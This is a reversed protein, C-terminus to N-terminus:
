ERLCRRNSFHFLHFTKGKFKKRWKEGFMMMDSLFGVAGAGCPATTSPVAVGRLSSLSPCRADGSCWNQDNTNETASTVASAATVTSRQKKWDGDALL